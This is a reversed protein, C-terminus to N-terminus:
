TLVVTEAPLRMSFVSFSQAPLNCIASSVHFIVYAM